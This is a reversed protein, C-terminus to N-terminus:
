FIVIVAFWDTLREREREWDREKEGERREREKVCVYRYKGIQKNILRVIAKKDILM